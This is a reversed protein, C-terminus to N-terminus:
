LSCCWDTGTVLSPSSLVLSSRLVGSELSQSGLPSDGPRNIINFSYTINRALPEGVGVEVGGGILVSFGETMERM